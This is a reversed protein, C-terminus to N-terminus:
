YQLEVDHLLAQGEAVLDHIAQDRTRSGHVVVERPTQDPHESEAVALPVEGEEQKSGGDAATEEIPAAPVAPAAHEADTLPPEIEYAAGGTTACGAFFLSALIFPFLAASHRAPSNM